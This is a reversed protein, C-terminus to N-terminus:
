QSIIGVLAKAIEIDRVWIREEFVEVHSLYDRWGDSHCEIKYRSRLVPRDFILIAGGGEDGDRPLTAQGAAVVTPRSFTAIPAPGQM